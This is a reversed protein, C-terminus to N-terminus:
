RQRAEFAARRAAEYAKRAEADGGSRFAKVLAVVADRLAPALKLIERAVKLAEIV